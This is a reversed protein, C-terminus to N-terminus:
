SMSKLAILALTVTIAGGIRTAIQAFPMMQMRNAATLIAVDGTGGQGSHCANVIAAEIPYLKVWRGVFFGTTMLAVVTAIITILNAPQLAAMLKDWPTLAVGIAFLLPYTVATRFFKYVIGAGHQLQPPVGYALKVAVAIFLMVVPAPFRFTEPPLTNAAVGILYLTIAISAGAAIHSVDMHGTIEEQAAHLEDHEGPQLRGEGTLHPFKKGVFNLTGSLLIATLSGFMVPPLVRAFEDGQKLHLIEAYGTSLPLAGEGVGGGMIPVVIYFFTHKAGLGLLTGVGVGVSLAVGGLCGELSKAPSINPAIKHRGFPVGFLLGGVDTFKTVAVVWLAIWLGHNNDQNKWRAFDVFFALLAPVYLVGFATAFRLVWAQDVLPRRLLTLLVAVWALAAYNLAAPIGADSLFVAVMLIAGAVLGVGIRPRAGSKELIRYLEYQAALGLALIVLFGGLQAINFRGFGYIVLGVAAWLGLTSLARDKM